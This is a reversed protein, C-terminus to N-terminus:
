TRPKPDIKNSVARIMARPALKAAGAIGRYLLGPIYVPRNARLAAVSGDVVADVDVYLWGPKTSMDIGARRHFETRVFGPCLAQVRVGSDKCSVALGESFAIVWAKSASYTSGRGPLLGAISAVNVIGGHGRAVMGPLTAHTLMLVATVNLDLQDRVEAETTQHFAMGLGKGANNVLLDIPRDPDRLRDAVTALDAPNTLDAPLVEVAAAGLSLLAARRDALRDADRAVIVLAYGDAALRRCYAAGIGASSGTVLATPM